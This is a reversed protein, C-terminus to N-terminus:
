GFPSTKRPDTRTMQHLIRRQNLLNAEMVPRPDIVTSAEHNASRPWFSAKTNRHAWERQGSRSITFWVMGRLMYCWLHWPFGVLSCIAWRALVPYTLGMIRTALPLESTTGANGRGSERQRQPGAHRSWTGACVVVSRQPRPVVLDEPAM